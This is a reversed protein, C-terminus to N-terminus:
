NKMRVLVIQHGKGERMCGHSQVHLEIHGLSMDIDNM